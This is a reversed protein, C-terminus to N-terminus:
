YHPPPLDNLHECRLLVTKPIEGLTTCLSMWCCMAQSCARSSSISRCRSDAIRLLGTHRSFSSKSRLTGPTPWTSETLRIVPRGSSPVSDRRWIAAKTPTAGNFRSLPRNRPLRVTQPPLDCRRATKYMAVRLAERTLGAM